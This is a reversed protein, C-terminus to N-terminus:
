QQPIASKVLDLAMEFQEEMSLHSNDIVVADDAKRLPNTARNSDQEDRAKLNALVEEFSAELGKSKLEDYRRQARIEPAATMFLKVEADPIVHTGIDRGDMVVGKESAMVQQLKVLKKRVEPIAAIESVKESVQMQRIEHEVPSNNLMVVNQGEANRAFRVDIEELKDLLSQRQLQNNDFLGADMAFFTIARYMAGSDVYIYGLHAALQKALTSKGCSSYGDIAINIKKM